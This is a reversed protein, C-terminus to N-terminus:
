PLLSYFAEEGGWRLSATLVSFIQIGDGVRIKASEGPLALPGREGVVEEGSGVWLANLTDPGSRVQDTM